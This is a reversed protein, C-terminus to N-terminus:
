LIPWIVSDKLDQANDGTGLRCRLRGEVGKSVFNVPTRDTGSRPM